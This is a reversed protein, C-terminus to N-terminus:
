RRRTAASRLQVPGSRRLHTRRAGVENFEAIAEEVRKMAYRLLVSGLQGRKYRREECLASFESNDEPSLELTAAGERRAMGVDYVTKV